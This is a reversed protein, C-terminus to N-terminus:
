GKPRRALLNVWSPVHPRGLADPTEWLAIRQLTTRTHLLALLAEPSADTFRRGDAARRAGDGRQFSAYLVGGPHLWGAIRALADPLADPAVHLLSACAWVGHLPAPATWTLLDACVALAQPAAQRTLAIMAPSADLAIVEAGAQSFAAADRGPGCGLDLIRARAPAVPLADLLRQRLSAVDAGMAREAYAAARSTDAYFRRTAEDDSM